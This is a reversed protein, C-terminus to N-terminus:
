SAKNKKDKDHHWKIALFMGTGLVLIKFTILVVPVWNMIKLTEPHPKISDTRLAILAEEPFAYVFNLVTTEM